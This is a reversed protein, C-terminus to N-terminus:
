LEKECQEYFHTLAHQFLYKKEMLYLSLTIPAQLNNRHSEYNKSHFFPYHTAENATTWIKTPLISQFSSLSPYTAIVHDVKKREVEYAQSLEKMMQRYFLKNAKEYRVHAHFDICPNLFAVSRISDEGSEMLQLAILAGMGEALIHIRKNLIEQKMMLHYLQKALRCAKLSGWHRGYLNSYFVTYGQDQLYTVLQSRGAHQIWLSTSSEVFHDKDGLILVGFGNPKEPVHVVSWQNDLSFFRRDIM